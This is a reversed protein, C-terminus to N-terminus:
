SRKKTETLQSLNVLQQLSATIAEVHNLTQRVQVIGTLLEKMGGEVEASIKRNEMRIAAINEM